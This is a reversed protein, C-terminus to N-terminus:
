HSRSPRRPTSRVISPGIVCNPGAVCSELICVLDALLQARSIPMVQKHLDNRECLDQLIRVSTTKEEQDWLVKALDFSSVAEIDLGVNASPIVLRSLYIASNLAAQSAELRRSTRLTERIAKVELSYAERETLGM